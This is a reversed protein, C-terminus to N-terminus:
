IPGTGDRESSSNDSKNRLNAMTPADGPNGALAESGDPIITWTTRTCRHREALWQERTGIKHTPMKKEGKM